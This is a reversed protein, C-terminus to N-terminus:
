TEAFGDARSSVVVATFALATGLWMLPTFVDTYIIVSFVCGFLCELSLLISVHTPQAYKQAITQMLYAFFTSLVGLYLMSLGTEMSMTKPMPSGGTFAVTLAIAACSLMQLTALALADHKKAAVGVFAIHMAFFLGCLLTYLDGKNIDSLNMDKKYLLLAVGAFCLFASLVQVGSPKKRKLLWYVFPVFVVYAATLIANKGATTHQAGVTQALFGLYVLGGATIGSLVTRLNAKKLHKGFCLLMLLAALGFRVALLWHPSISNLSNKVVIFGGGWLLAVLLLSLESLLVKNKQKM